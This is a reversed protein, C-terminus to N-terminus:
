SLVYADVADMIMGVTTQASWFVMLSSLSSGHVSSEIGLRSIKNGIGVTSVPFLLCKLYTESAVFEGITNPVALADLTLIPVSYYALYVIAFAAYTLRKRLLKEVAECRTKRAAVAEALEREASLLQRELKSTEVFHSPGMKRMRDAQKALSQVNQQKEVLSSPKRKLNLLVLRCLLELAAGALLLLWLDNIRIQTLVIEGHPILDFM